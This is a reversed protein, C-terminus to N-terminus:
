NTGKRKIYGNKITKITKLLPVNDLQYSLMLIYWIMSNVGGICAVM